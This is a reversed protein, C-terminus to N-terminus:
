GKDQQLSLDGIKQKYPLWRYQAANVSHDNRDEPEDKDEQWSYLNMERIHETCTDVTLYDGHAMWGRQLTIRDIVKTQKWAPNFVYIGGNRRAYKQCELITAQDASDIFVNRGYGWEARCAELFATLKL